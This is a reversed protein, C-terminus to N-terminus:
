PIEEYFSDIVVEKLLETNVYYELLSNEALTAEGPITTMNEASLSMGLLEPVLYAIDEPTINTCMNEQLSNYVTLPLSLDNKVTEKAKAFYNTIYQKQRDLRGMSSGVVNCDREQIYDRAMDGELHVTEGPQYTKGSIEVEELVQVDVGGVADNLVPIAALSISCYRQIPVQFLLKSVAEIMLECAQTANQGYAHQLTIQQEAEGIFKGNENVAKITTVTDRPIALLRLEGSEVNISVLVIADALGASGNALKEAEQRAEIPTDKDIGLCLFNIVDENYQYKKGKYKVFLGTDDNTSEGNATVKTKLNKEGQARLYFFSGTLGTIVVVLATVVCLVVKKWRKMALFRDLIGKSRKSRKSSKSPNRSHRSQKHPRDEFDDEYLIETLFESDLDNFPGQTGVFSQPNREKHSFYKKKKM